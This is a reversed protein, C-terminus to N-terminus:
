VNLPVPQVTVELSPVSVSALISITWFPPDFVNSTPDPPKAVMWSATSAALSPSVIRTAV